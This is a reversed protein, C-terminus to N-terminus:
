SATEWAHKGLEIIQTEFGDQETLDNREDVGRFVLPDALTFNFNHVFYKLTVRAGEFLKLDSSCM